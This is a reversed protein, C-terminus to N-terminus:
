AIQPVQISHVVTLEDQESEITFPTFSEVSFANTSAASNFIASNAFTKGLGIDTDAGKVIVQLKLENAGEVHVWAVRADSTDLRVIVAGTDDQLEIFGWTSQIHNRLDEYAYLSIETM